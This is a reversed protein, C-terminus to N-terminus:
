EADPFHIIDWFLSSITTINIPATILKIATIKKFLLIQRKILIHVAMDLKHFSLLMYREQGNLYLSLMKNDGVKKSHAM